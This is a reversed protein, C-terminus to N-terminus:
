PAIFEATTVTRSLLGYRTAFDLPAQVFKPDNSTAYYARTMAAIMAPDTKSVRALILASQAPNANAWKASAYIGTLLRKAADPNKQLWGKTTFWVINAFEPAIVGYVDVFEKVAGSALAGSLAPEAITAAQVTGRQLAPGMEPFKLEIFKVKGPAVGNHDLWATVGLQNFDNLTSVAIVGGELDKATKFTATKAVCLRSYSHKASYLAAPVIMQLPIGRTVAAAVTVINAMGVDLDGGLVAQVITSGNPLTTLTANIGNDKFFGREVGYYAEGFPDISMTGIRVDTAAAQAGAPRGAAVISGAVLALASARSISTM